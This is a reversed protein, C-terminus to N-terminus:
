LLMAKALILTSQSLRPVDLIHELTAQADLQAGPFHVTYEAAKLLMLVYLITTRFLGSLLCFSLIYDALFIQRKKDLSLCVGVCLM